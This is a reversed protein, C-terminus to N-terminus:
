YVQEIIGGGLVTDGDYLVVSQGASVSQQPQDFEVHLIDGDVRAKVGIPAQTSRFKASLDASAPRSIWRLDTAILGKKFTEDAFGVVVENTDKRLELVYLPQAAAVGLGKRKGVTYNWIGNHRGLVKGGSDVIDGPTEPLELFDSYQGICFDQSEPKEAIILNAERAIERIQEKTYGGLPLLVNDFNVRYLFYTQDKKPDVGRRLVGDTLRAYHGTAFKDFEIGAERALQPFLGFKVFSNCQVCPNPTRGATYEQKLNEIVHTKFAGACDIVHFPIGLQACVQEAASYDSNERTAM